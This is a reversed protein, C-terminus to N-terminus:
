LLLNDKCDHKTRYYCVHRQENACYKGQYEDHLHQAVVVMRPQDQQQKQEGAGQKIKGMGNEKPVFRRPYGHCVANVAKAVWSDKGEEVDIQSLQRAGQTSWPHQVPEIEQRRQDAEQQDGTAILHHALLFGGMEDLSEEVAILEGVLRVQAELDNGMKNDLHDEGNLDDGNQDFAALQDHAVAAEDLTAEVVRVVAPQQLHLREKDKEDDGRDDREDEVDHTAITKGDMRHQQENRSDDEGEQEEGEAIDAYPELYVRKRLFLQPTNAAPQLEATVPIGFDALTTAQHAAIVARALETFVNFLQHLILFKVQLTVQSDTVDGRTQMGVAVIDVVGDVPLHTDGKGIVDVTVAYFIGDHHHFFVRLQLHALNTQSCAVVSGAREVPVELKKHTTGGLFIIGTQM